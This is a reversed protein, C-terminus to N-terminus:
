LEILEEEEAVLYQFGPNEAIRRAAAAGGGGFRAVLAGGGFGTLGMKPTDILEVTIRTQEAM